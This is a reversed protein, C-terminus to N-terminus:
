KKDELIGRSKSKGEIEELSSLLWNLSLTISSSPLTSLTFSQWIWFSLYSRAWILEEQPSGSCPAELLLRGVAEGPHWTVLVAGRPPSRCRVGAKPAHERGPEGPCAALLLGTCAM